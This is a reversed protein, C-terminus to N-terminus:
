YTCLCGDADSFSQGPGEFPRGLQSAVNRGLRKARAQIAEDALLVGPIPVGRALMQDMVKIHMSFVSQHLMPLVLSSWEVSTAGGAAILAGVRPKLLRKAPNFDKFRPGGVKKGAIAKEVDAADVYPGLARDCFFKLVGAAQRTYIPSAIVLADCNLIADLAVPRDDVIKNTSESPTASGTPRVDYLGPPGSTPISIETMRLFSITVNPDVAAEKLAIKLLTESTGNNTGCSLGLIHM